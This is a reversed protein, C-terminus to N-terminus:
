FSMMLAKEGRRFLIEGNRKFLREGKQELTNQLTLPSWYLSM